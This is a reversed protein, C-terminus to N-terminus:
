LEWHFYGLWTAARGQSGVVVGVAGVAGGAGGGAGAAAGEVV